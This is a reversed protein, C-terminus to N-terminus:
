HLVLQPTESTGAPQVRIGHDWPESLNHPCLPPPAQTRSKPLKQESQYASIQVQPAMLAALTQLLDSPQSIFLAATTFSAKKSSTSHYSELFHMPYLRLDWGGSRAGNLHLCITRHSSSINGRSRKWQGTQVRVQCSFTFTPPGHRPRSSGRGQHNCHTQSPWVRLGNKGPSM